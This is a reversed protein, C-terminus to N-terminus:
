IHRMTPQIHRVPISELYARERTEVTFFSCLYMSRAIGGPTTIMLEDDENKLRHLIIGNVNDTFSM